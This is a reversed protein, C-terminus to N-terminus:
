LSANSVIGPATGEFQGEGDPQAVGFGIRNRKIGVQLDLRGNPLDKEAKLMCPGGTRGHAVKVLVVQEKRSPNTTTGQFRSTAQPAM